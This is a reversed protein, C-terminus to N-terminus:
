NKFFEMEYFDPLHDLHQREWSKFVVAELQEIKDNDLEQGISDFFARIAVYGIITPNSDSVLGEITVLEVTWFDNVMSFCYELGIKAGQKWSEFGIEPVQIIMGQGKFGQGQCADIITNKFQFNPRVKLGIAAGFPVGNKVKFWKYLANKM